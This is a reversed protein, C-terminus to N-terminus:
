IRGLLVLILIIIFERTESLFSLVYPSNRQPLTSSKLTLRRGPWDAEALTRPGSATDNVQQKEISQHEVDSDNAQWQPGNRM